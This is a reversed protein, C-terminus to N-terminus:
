LGFYCLDILPLSFHPRVSIGRVLTGRRRMRSCLMRRAQLSLVTDCGAVVAHMVVEEGGLDGMARRGQGYSATGGVVPLVVCCLVHRRAAKAAEGHGHTWEWGGRCYGVGRILMLLFPSGGDWAWRWGSGLGTWDLGFV